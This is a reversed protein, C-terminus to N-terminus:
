LLLGRERMFDIPDRASKSQNCKPHTLQLNRRTHEGGRAIPKIHDLHFRNGLKKGCIACRGKQLKYIEQIDEITIKGITAAHKIARRHAEALRRKRKREPTRSLANLRELELRRAKIEPRANRARHYEKRDPPKRALYDAMYARRHAITEPRARWARRYIRTCNPCRRRPRMEGCKKCVIPDASNKGDAM